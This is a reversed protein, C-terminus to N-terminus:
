TLPLRLVPSLVIPAIFKAMTTIMARDYFAKDYSQKVLITTQRLPVGAMM